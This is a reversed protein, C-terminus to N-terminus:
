VLWANGPTRVARKVALKAVEPVCLLRREVEAVTSAFRVQEAPNNTRGFVNVTKSGTEELGMAEVFSIAAENERWVYASISQAPHRDQLALYGLMNGIHQRRYDPHVAIERLWVYKKQILHPIYMKMLRRAINGSTNDAAYLYGVLDEKDFARIVRPRAFSQGPSFDGAYPDIRSRRFSAPDEWHVFFDIESQTRPIDVSSFAERMLMQVQHWEDYGLAGPKNKDLSISELSM